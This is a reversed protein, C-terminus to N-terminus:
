KPIGGNSSPLGHEAPIEKVKNVGNDAASGSPLELLLAYDQYTRREDWGKLKIVSRRNRREYVLISYIRGSSNPMIYLMASLVFLQEATRDLAAEAEVSCLRSVLQFSV